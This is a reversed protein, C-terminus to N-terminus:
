LDCDPSHIEDNKKQQWKGNKQLKKNKTALNLLIVNLIKEDSYMASFACATSNHNNNNLDNLM